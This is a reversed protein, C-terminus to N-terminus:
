RYIAVIWPGHVPTGRLLICKKKCNWRATSIELDSKVLSVQFPEEFSFQLNGRKQYCNGGYTTYNPWRYRPTRILFGREMLPKLPM